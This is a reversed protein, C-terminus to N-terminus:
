KSAPRDPTTATETPTAAPQSGPTAVILPVPSASASTRLTNDSQGTPDQMVIEKVTYITVPPITGTSQRSAAARIGIFKGYYQAPDIPSGQPIEIYAQTRGSKPDVVRWRKPRSASGDYIGSMRIEGRIAIDDLNIPTQARIAARQKAIADAADIASDRLDRIQHVAAALELHGRLQNIRTEAYIKSVEDETQDAIPQLKAIIPDFTRDSLSKASEAAIEAEIANIEMQYKDDDPQDAPSAAARPASKRAMMTPGGTGTKSTVAATGDLKLENPKVPEITPPNPSGARAMSGKRDLLDAKIWVHAGPPPEIKYFAGDKSEGIVQVENGKALKVQKAYHREDLNSGAYVWSVGNAVGKQDDIRDIYTKDVLSYTGAPPVIKLWGFEEGVIKVEDGKNLKTVPYYNTSFGSRIYVNNGKIYGISSDGTPKAAAPAPAATEAPAGTEAPAAKDESDAAEPKSSQASTSAALCLGVVWCMWANRQTHNM